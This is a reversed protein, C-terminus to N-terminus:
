KNSKLELKKKEEDAVKSDYEDIIGKEVLVKRLKKTVSEFTGYKVFFNKAVPSFHAGKRSIIERLDELIQLNKIAIMIKYFIEFVEEDTFKFNVETILPFRNIRRALFMFNVLAYAACTSTTQKPCIGRSFLIKRNIQLAYIKRIFDCTLKEDYFNSSDFLVIDPSKGEFIEISNRVLIVFAHSFETVLFFVTDFKKLVDAKSPNDRIEIYDEFVFAEFNLNGFVSLKFRNTTFLRMFFNSEGLSFENAFKFFTKCKLSFSCGSFSVMDKTNPRLFYQHVEEEFSENRKKSNKGEFIAYKILIEEIKKLKQDIDKKKLM